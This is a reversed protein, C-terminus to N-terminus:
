VTLQATRSARLNAKRRAYCLYGNIWGELHFTSESLINILKLLTDLYSMFQTYHFPAASSPVSSPIDGWLVKSNLCGTYVDRRQAFEPTEQEDIRVNSWVMRNQFYEKRSGPSM